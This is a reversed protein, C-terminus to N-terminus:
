VCVIDRLTGAIPGVSSWSIGDTSKAIEGGNGVVFFASDVVSWGVGYWLASGALLANTRETWVDGDPSTYVNRDGGVVVFLTLSPSWAAAYFNKSGPPPTGASSWSTGNSSKILDSGNAQSVCIALTLDESWCLRSWNQSSGLEPQMTWTVGDPSTAIQTAAASGTSFTAIFTSLGQSWRVDNWACGFGSNTFDPDTFATFTWNLGDSSIASGQSWISAFKNLTPSWAVGGYGSNGGTGVGGSVDSTAISWTDGGDDSHMIRGQSTLSTAVYRGIYPSYEVRRWAGAPVTTAVSFSSPSTSYAATSDGIIVASSAPGVPYGLQAGTKPQLRTIAILGGALYSM